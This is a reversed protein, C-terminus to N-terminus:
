RLWGVYRLSKSPTSRSRKPSFRGGNTGATLPERFLQRAEASAFSVQSEPLPRRYFSATSM